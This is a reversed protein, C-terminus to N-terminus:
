KVLICIATHNDQRPDKASRVIEQMAALWAEATETEAATRLMAEETVPEWFGDSCLLFRDGPLLTLETSDAAPSTDKEGLARFLKNRDKHHRLAEPVLEGVQVAMRVLSHDVSQFLIKGERFQYIRSDGIHAAVADNGQVWLVAATTNGPDRAKRIQRDAELLALLLEDEDAEKGQLSGCLSEVALRSALQGNAHGGLGDAVIALFGDEATTLGYSDENAARAGIDSYGSFAFEM